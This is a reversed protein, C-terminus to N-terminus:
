GLDYCCWPFADKRVGRNRSIAGTTQLRDIAHARKQSETAWFVSFGGYERIQALVEEERGKRTRLDHDLQSSEIEDALTVIGNPIRFCTM